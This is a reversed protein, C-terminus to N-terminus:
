EGYLGIDDFTVTGRTRTDTPSFGTLVIRLSAVGAPVSFTQELASFAGATSLPASLLTSACLFYPVM